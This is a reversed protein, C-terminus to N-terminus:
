RRVFGCAECWFALKGILGPATLCAEHDGIILLRSRARTLAVNVLHRDSAWSATGAPMEDSIVPSFVIADREDGQFGHATEVLVSHFDQPLQNALLRRVREVQARFPTVVGVSADPNSVRLEAAARAAFLAEPENVSSTGRPGRRHSGPVHRWEVAAGASDNADTLVQLRGGYVHNNSFEIIRPHSRYHRDLFVSQGRCAVEAASFLSQAAYSFREHTASDLGHREGLASDREPRLKTIHTLQNPDGIVMARRGRWLLPIASPLDCQSAEDIIVLDFLGRQLPLFTRATLNTVGWVPFPNLVEPVHTLLNSARRGGSRAVKSLAEAYASATGRKPSHRLQYLWEADFLTRGVAVREDSGPMLQADLESPRPLTDAYRRAEVAAERASLAELLARFGAFVEEPAAAALPLDDPIWKLLTELNRAAAREAHLRRRRQWFWWRRHLADAADVAARLSAEILETDGDDVFATLAAPVKAGAAEAQLEADQLAEGASIVENAHGYVKSASAAWEDWATLAASRDTAGTESQALANQITASVEQRLEARGARIPAGVASAGRLREFVVDVAKNNKSAFLVSDGRQLAAAIANVLVQSKGTGPPGTVLTLVNTLGSTIARDQALTTPLVSAHPQPGPPPAVQTHGLMAGLPGERLQSGPVNALEDLEQLLNRTFGVGRAVFFAATNSTTSGSQSISRPPALVAPDFHVDGPIVKNDALFQLRSAAWAPGAEGGNLSELAHILEDREERSVGLLMLAYGNVEPSLSREITWHHDREHGSVSIPVFFLPAIVRQVRGDDTEIPRLAGVLPWGAYAIEASGAMQRQTCWADLRESGREIQVPGSATVAPEMGRELLVHGEGAAPLVLSAIAEAELCDFWYQLLRHDRDGATPNGNDVITREVHLEHQGRFRKVSGTVAM